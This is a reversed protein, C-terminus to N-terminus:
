LIEKKRSLDLRGTLSQHWQLVSFGPQILYNLLKIGPDSHLVDGDQPLPHRAAHAPAVGHLLDDVHVLSALAPGEGALQQALVQRPLEAGLGVDEHDLLNVPLTHPFGRRSHSEQCRLLPVLLFSCCLM